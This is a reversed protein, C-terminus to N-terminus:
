GGPRIRVELTPRVTGGALDCSEGATIVTPPGVKGSATVGTFTGIFAVRGSATCFRPPATMTQGFNLRANNVLVAGTASDAVTAFCGVNPAEGTCGYTVLISDASISLGVGPQVKVGGGPACASVIVALAVVALSAAGKQRDRLQTMVARQQAPDLQEFIDPWGNGDADKLINRLFLVVTGVLLLGKGIPSAPDPPTGGGAASTFANVAEILAGLVLAVGSLWSFVKKMQNM